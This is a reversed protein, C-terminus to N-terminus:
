WWNWMSWNVLESKKISSHLFAEEFKLSLNRLHKQM